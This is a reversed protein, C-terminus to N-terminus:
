SAATTGCGGAAACGGPAGDASATCTCEGTLDSCGCGADGSARASADGVGAGRRGVGSIAGSGAYSPTAGAAGNSTGSRNDDYRASDLRAIVGSKGLM